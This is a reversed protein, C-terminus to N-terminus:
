RATSIPGLVSNFSQEGETRDEAAEDHGLSSAAFPVFDEPLPQTILVLNKYVQAKILLSPINSFPCVLVCKLSSPDDM